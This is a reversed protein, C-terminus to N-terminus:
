VNMTRASFTHSRLMHAKLSKDDIKLDTAQACCLRASPSTWRTIAFPRGIAKLFGYLEGASNIALAAVCDEM